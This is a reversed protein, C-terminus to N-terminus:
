NVKHVLEFGDKKMCECPRLCTPISTYKWCNVVSVESTIRKVMKTSSDLGKGVGSGTINQLFSMSLMKALFQANM